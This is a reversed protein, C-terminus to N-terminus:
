PLVTKTAPMQIIACTGCPTNPCLKISGGHAQILERAISLGLGSGRVPSGIPPPGQVFPEFMEQEKGPPIGAGEDCVKITVEESHQSASIEIHQGERSFKLANSLLNDLVVTLKDRDALLMTDTIENNISINRSGASLKQDGIVQEVIERLRLKQLSLSAPRSRLGSYDLLNEILKRLRQCNSRLIQLVEQQDATLPGPIGDALLSTGEQLATLPTKLEHSVQHLLKTKQQDLEELRNRLWDLRSGLVVMDKPGSIKIPTKFHGEGLQRLAQEIQLFPFRILVTIGISLILSIPVLMWLRQLMRQRTDASQQRLTQTDAEIRRDIQQVVQEAIRNMEVFPEDLETNQSPTLQPRQLIKWIRKETERMTELPKDIGALGSEQQLQHSTQIFLARRNAYAAQGQPDNLITQQRALRELATVHEDLLRSDRTIVTARTIATEAKRSLQNLSFYADVLTAVPPILVFLFGVLLLQPFSIPYLLRM